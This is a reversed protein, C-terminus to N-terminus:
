FSFSFLFICKKITRAWCCDHCSQHKQLKIVVYPFLCFSSCATQNANNYQMQHQNAAKSRTITTRTFKRPLITSMSCSKKYSPSKALALLVIWIPWNSAPILMSKPLQAKAPVWTSYFFLLGYILIFDLFLLIIFFLFLYMEQYENHYRDHRSVISIKM